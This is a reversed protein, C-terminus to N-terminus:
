PAAPTQLRYFRTRNTATADILTELRNTARAPVDGLKMWPASGLTETSRVTYTRNSVAMFTLTVVGTATLRDTKLYSLPDRPNTGAIYEDRNSMGDGDADDQPRSLDGALGNTHGFARLMWADPLGDGDTDTLLTLAANASIVLGALNTVVVSWNGTSTLSVNTVTFFCNSSLLILNTLGSSNKRWRYSLPLTGTASVGFTVSNGPAASQSLPQQIIAPRVQVTLMAPQSEAPGISDTVIVTYSGAQAPQVNTLTLTSGTAGILSAGNLRWQYTLTGTGSAGVSFVVTNGANTAISQPQASIQPPPFVTLQAAASAVFGVLNGVRVSYSGAQSVQVNTLFLTANTANTILNSNCRWQYTLPTPSEAVVTFSATRFAAVAAPQPQQTIAPLFGSVPPGGPTPAAATWNTPENGYAADAQRNLSPGGGDAAPPWPAKDNYRVADVTIYALGNTDPMDPQQLELREGNHQLGGSWPGLVPTTEPVGYKARFLAPNTAVLLLFQHSALVLNTPFAFGLGNLRWTNTPFAPDYLPVAQGTINKLEVFQDGELDPHYNIETIVVPGVRPGANSAGLTPVLQAPFQEEGTSIVLRGFTVGSAAAGFDFGHSYGTLNTASDASFLYVSEGRSSLAFTSNTGPTPNFDAETFVRYGFASIMTGDPIRFKKPVSPDDALFWGGIDMDTASPNFLEIADMDPPVSDTLIENVLVPTIAPAPDDAGPSGGVGSSARWNTGNDPDPNANPQRSVLSFGFGHPTIPWPAVNNYTLSLVKSGLPHSLTLTEGSNNLKGTYVGGVVLGPYKAHLQPLNRGLVFFRGPELRTGNTFTFAIGATFSLGGLDLTSVGTNKLELFEVEDGSVAGFAPPDYMIETVILKSFDQPTYFVTEVLASWNAGDKVRARVLTTTNLTVPLSYSQATPAVAGSGSVRPDSGDLTFFVVGSTNTNSLTLNFGAPVSGGFQNFNPANLAPYLGAARFQALSVPFWSSIWNTLVRDREPRWYTERTYLVAGPAAYFADGWRASEPVIAPEIKDTMWKWRDALGAVTLAGQNFLLRQIRDGFLRRFEPYARLKSYIFCPTDPNDRATLDSPAQLYGMCFDGDWTYFKFGAGPERKRTAYWNKKPWDENDTHMCVVLYDIFNTIDLYQLVAQYQTETSVGANCLAILANWAVDDGDAVEHRDDATSYHKIADYQEKQGGFYSAAFAANPVESSRYLGWYLGNIYLHAYDVHPAPQGTDVQAQNLYAARIYLANAVGAFNMNVVASDHGNLFVTFTDFSDVPSDKFLQFRLRPAGYLAKFSFRLSHKVIRPDRTSQGVIQAGGNIQFERTPDNPDFYEISCPREWQDGRQSQGTNSYIGLPGFFDDVDAVVSITPLSKLDALIEPAYLANTVIRQDMAYDATIGNWSSPFGAPNNPQHLVGNLFIYTQTDVDTPVSDPKFAAARVTRTTTIPIPNTYLIGNKAQGNRGDNPVSGDWTYYIEADPTASTIELLFNTEFFGRNVSFKTDAVVGGTVGAGNPASPTPAAFYRRADPDYGSVTGVMEPVLLFNSSSAAANLGQLALLNIGPRLLPIASSLDFEQFVVAESVPRNTLAASNWALSSVVPAPVGFRLFQDSDSLYAAAVWNSHRPVNAIRVEDLYGNLGRDRNQWDGLLIGLAGDRFASPAPANGDLRNNLFISDLHAFPNHVATLKYWVNNWAAALLTTTGLPGGNAADFFEPKRDLASGPISGLNELLWGDPSGSQTRAVAVARVATDTQKVWAEVTLGNAGSFAGHNDITIVETGTMDVGKGIFANVADSAVLGTERGPFNTSASNQYTPTANVGTPTQNLHYVGVFGHSWVGRPNQADAASANGWVAKFTTDSSGAPILPVRVWIFSEGAPNWQEIEYDLPTGNADAFRLDAGNPAFGTYNNVRAPTLKVLVPFNVLNSVTQASNSVTLTMQSAWGPFAGSPANRSAVAQGNLYAVFGDDFKMKLKLSNLTTPSPVNFPVRLYASANRNLMRPQVELGILPHYSPETDFGVGTVGSMWNSDPVFNPATWTRGLVDNTPIYAQVPAGATLFTEPATGFALGCSVDKGQPPFVPAFEQALSLDPRLLALYEGAANLKFNAHLPATATARDKGSAFVILYGAPALTISPFGWQTLHSTTDTLFWGQLNVPASHANYLELWSSRDGDEDQLGSVNSALFETILVQQASVAVPLCILCLWWCWAARPLLAPRPQRRPALDDQTM